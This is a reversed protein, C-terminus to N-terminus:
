YNGFVSPLDWCCPLFCPLPSNTASTSLLLPSPAAQNKSQQLLFSAAATRAIAVGAALLHSNKSQHHLPQLSTRSSSHSSSPTVLNVIFGSTFEYLSYM